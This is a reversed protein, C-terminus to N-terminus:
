RHFSPTWNTQPGGAAGLVVGPSEYRFHPNAPTECLGGLVQHVTELEPEAGPHPLCRPGGGDHQRRVRLSLAIEAADMPNRGPALKFRANLNAAHRQTPAAGPM